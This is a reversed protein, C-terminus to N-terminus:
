KEFASKVPFLGELFPQIEQRHENTANENDNLCFLSPTHLELKEKFQLTNIQIRLSVKRNVYKIHGHGIALSYYSIASRYFDGDTRTRHIQSKKVEENFVEEIAKQYDSKRYSDINHHPLGSYYKGCKKEILSMSRIVTKRYHGDEKVIPRLLNKWKGFKRKKLCIIPNGDKAFFFDPTLDGNFFMDDNSFLFHESLGPIKYLFYEIAISNFLPLVELPIIQTHDILNIKPHDTNLWEPKQDDTVIFINRIWPAHKEVSRLSYKLENSNVYRGAANTESNDNRTTTFAQKKKQWKPDSGDVWLYVLDIGLNQDDM